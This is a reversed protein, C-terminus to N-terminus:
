RLGASDRSIIKFIWQLVSSDSLIFSDLQMMIHLMFATHICELRSAILTDYEDDALAGRCADLLTGM